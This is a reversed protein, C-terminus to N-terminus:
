HLNDTTTSCVSQGDPTPVSFKVLCNEFISPQVNAYKACYTHWTLEVVVVKVVVFTGVVTVLVVRTVVVLVLEVVVDELVAATVVVLVVVERRTCPRVGSSAAM